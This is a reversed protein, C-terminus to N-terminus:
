LYGCHEVDRGYVYPHFIGSLNFGCIPLHSLGDRNSTIVLEVLQISSFVSMKHIMVSAFM